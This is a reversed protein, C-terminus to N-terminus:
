GHIVHYFLTAFFRFDRHRFSLKVAHLFAALYYPYISISEKGITLAGTCFHSFRRLAHEAPIEETASFSHKLSVDLVVFYDCVKALRRGFSIDSFDLPIREDYGGVSTFASEKVFLGSNIFKYRELPLICQNLKKIRRGRGFTFIFPSLLGKKDEMRAVFAVAQPHSEIAEAMEKFLIADVSTDQDLFLMWHKNVSRAHLAARNYARSIGPNDQDHIYSARGFSSLLPGPSNDYLFIEPASSSDNLASAVSLYAASPNSNTRYLVIVVLLDDLFEALRM